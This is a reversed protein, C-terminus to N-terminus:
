LMDYNIEKYEELLKVIEIHGNESAWSIANSNIPCNHKLLVKVIEIHGNMSAWSIADESLKAGEKILEEIVKVTIKKKRGLIVKDAKWKKPKGPNEYVQADNPITVKRIWPGYGLFSLIDEKSFYIGGSQCDGSPNFPLIDINLGTKYKLGNHNEEKNTIKYYNM